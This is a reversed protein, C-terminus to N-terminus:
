YFDLFNGILYMFYSRKKLKRVISDLFESICKSKVLWITKVNKKKIFYHKMLKYEGKSNSIKKNM